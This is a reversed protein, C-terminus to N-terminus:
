CNKTRCGGKQVILKYLENEEKAIRNKIDNLIDSTDAEFTNLRDNVKSKTNYKNKYDTFVSSIDGMEHMYLNAMNKLQTDEGNILNPYLFKDEYSM